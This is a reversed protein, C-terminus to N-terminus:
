KKIGATGIKFDHVGKNAMEFLKNWKQEFEKKKDGSLSNIIRNKVEILKNKLDNDGNTGPM